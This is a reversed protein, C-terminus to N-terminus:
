TGRRRRKGPLQEDDVVRLRRISRDLMVRVRVERSEPDRRREGRNAREFHRVFASDAMARRNAVGEGPEVYALHHGHRAGGTAQVGGTPFAPPSQQQITAIQVALGAGAVGAAAVPAGPGLFAFSPILSVAARAADVIAGAIQAEKNRRFASLVARRQEHEVLAIQFTSAEGTAKLADVTRRANEQVASFKAAALREISQSALDAAAIAGQSVNDFTAKSKVDIAALAETARQSVDEFAEGVEVLKPATDPLKGVAAAIDEVKGETEAATQKIAQLPEVLPPPGQFEFSERVSFMAERFAEARETARTIADTTSVAEVSMEALSAAADQLFIPIPVLTRGVELVTTGLEVWDVRLEDVLSSLFVTSVAVEELVRVAEDGFEDVVTDQLGEWALSLNSTARFWENTRAVAQPGVDIGFQAATAVFHDLDNVNSIASFFNKGEEGLLRVAEAARETPNEVRSLKDIIERLVEDASRLAGSATTVAIGYKQFSLLGEGTGQSTELIRKALDRPVLEDLEKNTQGAILRLGNLTEKSLGTAAELTGLTDITGNVEESWEAFTSVAETGALVLGGIAVVAAAASVGIATSASSWQQRIDAAVKATSRAARDLGKEIGQAMQRGEAEAQRSVRALARLVKRTDGDFEFSLEEDAM